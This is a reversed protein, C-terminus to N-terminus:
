ELGRLTLQVAETEQQSVKTHLYEAIGGTSKPKAQKIGIEKSESVM